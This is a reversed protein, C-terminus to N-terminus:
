NVVKRPWFHRNKFPWQCIDVSVKRDQLIRDELTSILESVKDGELEYIDDEGVIIADYLFFLSQLIFGLEHIKNAEKKLFDIKRQNADFENMFHEMDARDQGCAIVRYALLYKDWYMDRNVFWELLQAENTNKLYDCVLRNTEWYNRRGYKKYHSVVTIKFKPLYDLKFPSGKCDEIKNKTLSVIRSVIEKNTLLAFDIEENIDTFFSIMKYIVKLFAKFAKDNKKHRWNNFHIFISENSIAHGFIIEKDDPYDCDDVSCEIKDLSNITLIFDAYIAV